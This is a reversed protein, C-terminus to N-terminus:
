RRQSLAAASIDNLLEGGCGISVLVMSELRREEKPILRSISRGTRDHVWGAQAARTRNLRPKTTSLAADCHRRYEVLAAM